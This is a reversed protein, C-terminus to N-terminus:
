IMAHSRQFSKEKVTWYHSFMFLLHFLSHCLDRSFDGSIISFQGEHEFYVHDVTISIILMFFPAIQVSIIM